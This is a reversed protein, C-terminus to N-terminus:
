LWVRGVQCALYMGFLFLGAYGPWDNVHESARGSPIQWLNRAQIVIHAAMFVIAGIACGDGLGALFLKFIPHISV